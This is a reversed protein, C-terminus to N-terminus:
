RFSGTELWRSLHGILAAVQKRSLHQRTGLSVKKPIPYPVWGTTEKTAVGVSAADRAMVKPEVDDVGLWVASVGPQPCEALSSMQLSCPVGYRDRFEILEFGRPTRTVKGLKPTRKKTNAM